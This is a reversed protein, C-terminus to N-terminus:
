RASCLFSSAGMVPVEIKSTGITTWDVFDRMRCRIPFAYMAMLRRHADFRLMPPLADVPIYIDMAAANTKQAM